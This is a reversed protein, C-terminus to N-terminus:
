GLPHKGIQEQLMGVSTSLYITTTKIDSHGMMKQLSFLDCGGELMLTAFTHRLKHPSFNIGTANKIANVVRKVGTYTSPGNGRLTPFFYLSDKKLRNRDRLYQALIELLKGSVPVLRDKGGKGDKIMIVRNEIDVENLKLNLLESIRLGAFILVAMMAKNKYRSYRYPAPMNFSYDLVIQADQKSIRKPLKNELRPKQITDIPNKDIYGNFVCWKFFAKLGKYRGLLTDASWEKNARKTYFWDRIKETTVQGVSTIQGDYFALFERIAQKYWKITAPRYNKSYLCEDCFQQHHNLIANNM